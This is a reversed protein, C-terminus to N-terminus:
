YLSVLLSVSLRFYSSLHTATIYLSFTLGLLILCFVFGFFVFIKINQDLMYGCLYITVYSLLVFCMRLHLQFLIVKDPINVM